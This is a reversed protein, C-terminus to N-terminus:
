YIIDWDLWNGNTLQRRYLRVRVDAISTQPIYEQVGYSNTQIYVRLWGNFDVPKNITDAHIVFFTGSRKMDNFDIGSLIISGFENQTYDGLNYRRAVSESNTEVADIIPNITEPLPSDADTHYRLGSNPQLDGSGSM